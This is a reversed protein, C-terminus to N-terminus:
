GSYSYESTEKDKNFKGKNVLKELAQYVMNNFDKSFSKYGSNKVLVAMDRYKIKKGKTLQNQGIMELLAPLSMRKPDNESRSRTTKEDDTDNLLRICKEYRRQQNRLKKIEALNNEIEQEHKEISSQITRLEDTFTPNNNHKMYIVM